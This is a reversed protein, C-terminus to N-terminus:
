MAPIYSLDQRFKIVDTMTSETDADLQAELAKALVKGMAETLMMDFTKAPEEFDAYNPHDIVLVFTNGPGGHILAYWTYNGGWKTKKIAASIKAINAIFEQTKGMKVRFTIVEGYKAPMAAPPTSLDTMVAYDRAEMSEVAPGMTKMWEAQDAEESIPPNDLDKWHTPPEGVVYTGTHEGTTIQWVFLPRPDKKEKHWAAKAKRGDEYQQTMGFKIKQFEVQFISAPKQQAVLALAFVAALACVVLSRLNRM